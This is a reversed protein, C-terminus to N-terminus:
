KNFGHALNFLWNGWDNLHSATIGNYHNGCGMQENQERKVEEAEEVESSGRGDVTKWVVFYLNRIVNNAEKPICGEPVAWLANRFIGDFFLGRFYSKKHKNSRCECSLVDEMQNTM